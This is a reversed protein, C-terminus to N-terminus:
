KRLAKARKLKRACEGCFKLKQELWENEDALLLRQNKDAAMKIIADLLEANTEPKKKLVTAM